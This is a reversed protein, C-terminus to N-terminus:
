PPSPSPLPCPRGPVIYELTLQTDSDDPIYFESPNDGQSRPVFCDGAQSFVDLNTAAAIPFSHPGEVEDDLPFDGVIEVDLWFNASVTINTGTIEGYNGQTDDSILISLFSGAQFDISGSAISFRGIPQVVGGEEVNVGGATLSGVLDASNTLVGGSSIDVDNTVTLPARLQVSSGTTIELSDLNGVANMVFNTNVLILDGGNLNQFQASGGVSLTLANAAVNEHTSTFDGATDQVSLASKTLAIFDFLPFPYLNM